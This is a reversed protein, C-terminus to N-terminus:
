MMEYTRELRKQTLICTAENEYLAIKAPCPYDVLTILKGFSSWTKRDADYYSKAFPYHTGPIVGGFLYAEMEFGHENTNGDEGMYFNAGRLHAPTAADVVAHTLEHILTSALQFYGHERKVIDSSDNDDLIQQYAEDGIAIACPCGPLDPAYGGEWEPM